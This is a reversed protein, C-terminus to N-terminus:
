WRQGSLHGSYHCLPYQPAKEHPRELSNLYRAVKGKKGSIQPLCTELFSCSECGKTYLPPPTAGSTLMTHVQRATLETEDRLKEDFLVQSRRKNKGYFLAGAPVELELMEELCIAQACLQVKDVNNKKPRGRKYEVPFPQWVKGAGQEKRHFEVIDARGVLGLTSSRIAVDFEVRIERRSEKGTTHVREHLVRGEATFLNETWQQEIHILACQRPCFLYHQLASIMIFDDEDYM